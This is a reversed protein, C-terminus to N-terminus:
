TGYLIRSEIIIDKLVEYLGKEEELKKLRNLEEIVKKCKSYVMKEVTKLAENKNIKEEIYSIYILISEYFNNEKQGNTIEKEVVKIRTFEDIDMKFFYSRLVALMNIDNLPNEIIDLYSCILSVEPIELFSENTDTYCPIGFKELIEQYRGARKNVSRLLIVIDKYELRKGTKKYKERLKIIRKAIGIAEKELGEIEELIEDDTDADYNENDDDGLSALEINNQLNSELNKELNKREDKEEEEEKEEEKTNILLIEPKFFEIKNRINEESLSYIELNELDSISSNEQLRFEGTIYRGKKLYHNENYDIIGTEKTMIRSFVNNTIELVNELSRFNKDLYIVKNENSINQEKEVFLEPRSNRFGYISQKPDGVRFINKNSVARIIYEQLMNIDQYEDVAIEEVDEKMAKAINSLEYKNNLNESYNAFESEIIEAINNYIEELKEIDYEIKISERLNDLDEYKEVIKGIINNENQKSIRLSIGEEEKKDYLLKLTYKELDIYDLLNEEMKIKEFKEYFKATIYEIMELVEKTKKTQFIIDEDDELFSM